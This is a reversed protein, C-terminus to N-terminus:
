ASVYPENNNVVNRLKILLPSVEAEESHHNMSMNQSTNAIKTNDVYKPTTM